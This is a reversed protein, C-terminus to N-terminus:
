LNPQSNTSSSLYKEFQGIRRIGLLKKKQSIKSFLARCAPEIVKLEFQVQLEKLDTARKDDQILLQVGIGRLFFIKRFLNENLFAKATQKREINENIFRSLQMFRAYVFM